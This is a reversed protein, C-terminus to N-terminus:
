RPDWEKGPRLLAHAEARAHHIVGRPFYLFDGPELAAVLFPAAVEEPRFDRSYERPLDM